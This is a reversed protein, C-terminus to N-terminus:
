SGAIALGLAVLSAAIWMESSPIVFANLGLIGGIAMFFVFTTPLAWIAGKHFISSLVGVSVMALLHDFGLVPHIAGEGISTM